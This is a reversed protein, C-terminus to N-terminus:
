NKYSKIKNKLKYIKFLGTFSFFIESVTVSSEGRSRNVFKCNTESVIFNNYYLNVLIESLVIFGDGIKGCRQTIFQTADYSYLRFGNTYDSVPVGLMLKAIFNSLRSFIKRKIPWNIIKSKKLYRSGILLDLKKEFFIKLNKKLEIPDHSLDCDMEVYVDQKSLNKLAYSFGSLVASGRGSKKGRHIYRIQYKSKKIRKEYSNSSDDVIIIILNKFELNEIEKLIININDFENYAPIIICKKKFNM